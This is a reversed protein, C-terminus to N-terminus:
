TLDSRDKGRLMVLKHVALDEASLVWREGYGAIALRRRRARMAPPPDGLLFVDCSVRGLRVTTFGASALQRVAAAREFLCGARELVNFLSDRAAGDVFASLDADRTMRVVGHAALAVAGGIAYEIGAAELHQGIAAAAAAPDDIRPSV